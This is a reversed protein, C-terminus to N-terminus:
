TRSFATFGRCLFIHQWKASSVRHIATAKLGYYSKNDNTWIHSGQVPGVGTWMPEALVMQASIKPQDMLNRGVQDSHNAVGKPNREDTSMLLLKPTEIANCAIVFLRGVVRQSEKTPNFFHVAQINQKADTEVRYAVANALIRGGKSEIWPLASAADYKASIPCVPFCLDHSDGAHSPSNIPTRKDGREIM